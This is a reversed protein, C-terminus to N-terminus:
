HPAGLFLAGALVGLLFVVVGLVAPIRYSGLAAGIITLSPLSVAPLTLLLAAAPGTLGQQILPVAIALETWTPIMFLTGIAAAVIITALDNRGGFAFIVPAAVSVVVAALFLLPVAVRALRWATDLWAALLAAPTDIPRDQLARELTFLRFLGDLLRSSPQGTPLPAPVQLLRASVAQSVLWTGLVAVVVGGVIRLLAFESPLLVIALSLTTINLMPAAVVFALTPGLSAGGRYLSAGAPGACCSCFPYALAVLAGTLHGRLGTTALASKLFGGASLLVLFLAGILIGLTTAHWVVLLFNVAEGLPRLWLPLDAVPFTLSVGLRGASAIRTAQVGRYTFLDVVLLVMLALALLNRARTLEVGRQRLEGERRAMARYALWAGVLGLGLFVLHVPHVYLFASPAGLQRYAAAPLGIGRRMEVVTLLLVAFFVFFTVVRLYYARVEASLPTTRPQSIADYV